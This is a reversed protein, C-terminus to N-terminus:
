GSGHLFASLLWFLSLIVLKSKLISNFCPAEGVSLQILLIHLINAVETPCFLNNGNALVRPAQISAETQWLTFQIPLLNTM